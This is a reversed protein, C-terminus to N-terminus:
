LKKLSPDKQFKGYDATEMGYIAILGDENSHVGWGYKKPLPSTRLCAQGKSFYGIRKEAWENEPIENRIAYVKFLIDDSTFQYPNEFILDFQLSALTQKNGKK